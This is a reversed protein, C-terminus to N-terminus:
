RIICGVKRGLSSYVEVGEGKGGSLFVLFLYIYIYICVVVEGVKGVRDTLKM